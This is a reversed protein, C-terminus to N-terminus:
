RSPPTTGRVPCTTQFRIHFRLLRLRHLRAGYPARPKFYRLMSPLFAIRIFTTGRVPCTTQFKRLSRHSSPYLTTGRVPCTTQFGIRCWHLQLIHTTGRVPCTTQFAKPASWWGSRLRRAGYPARPKFDTSGTRIRSLSPDHGTRPVHNSICSPFHFKTLFIQRAGYPARPKFHCCPRAYSGPVRLRAGYPARPKFYLKMDRCVFCNTTTGRVPCTTQFTKYSICSSPSAVDHGTRPVHNSICDYSIAMGEKNTTGRVPCTTQFTRCTWM